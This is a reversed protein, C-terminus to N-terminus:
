LIVTFNNTVALWDTEGKQNIKEMSFLTSTINEDFKNSGIELTIRLDM